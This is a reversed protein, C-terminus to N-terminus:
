VYKKLINKITNFFRKVYLGWSKEVIINQRSILRDREKILEKSSLKESKIDIDYLWVGFPNNGEFIKEGNMRSRIEGMLALNRIQRNGVSNKVIGIDRDAFAVRMSESKFYEENEVFKKNNNFVGFFRDFLNYKSLNQYTRSIIAGPLRGSIEILYPDNKCFKLECHFGCYQLGLIKVVKKVYNKGNSIQKKTLSYIPSTHGIQQMIPPESLEFETVGVFEAKGKEKAFGDFSFIKGEIFEEILFELNNVDEYKMWEDYNNKYDAIAENVCSVFENITTGEKIFRVGYSHGSHIPKIVAKKLNKKFFNFAENISDKSFRFFNPQKIGQKQLSLRM